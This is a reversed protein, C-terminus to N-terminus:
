GVPHPLQPLIRELNNRADLCDPALQLAKRYVAVAEDVKGQEALATGLSTLGTVYDPNIRAAQEFYTVAAELKGEEVLLYGMNCYPDANKPDIRVAQEFHGAAERFRGQKAMAIGLSNHAQGYDPNIRVAESYYRIAEDLKGGGAMANGINYLADANDPDLRLVESFQEVAEDDRGQSLMAAGLNYRALVNDPQQSVAKSLQEIGQATKGQGFLAAGLHIRASTYDPRILIAQSFHEIAADAKGQEALVYGLNYHILASGPSVRLTHEFLTVSDRWYQIQFWTCVSLASILTVAMAGLAAHRYRVREVLDPVGWAVMIFLGILPVYTYRDALAHHGVQVIGIVPVLTGLYWAWGVGFYPCRRILRVALVTVSGLIVTAAVIQWLPVGDLPYPYHVALNRPWVMKLIYRAYAVGANAVRDPLTVGRMEEMAGGRRQVLFTVVCSSAAFVFLPIKEYVPRWYIRTKKEAGSVSDGLRGLPWYDLLLLAFPLTVLMPKAMLGLAFLVIVPVYRWVGPKHVYGVYAWMTLLWFLTSLVDKREAVWAVSEVHLPHLAFLAAVFGSRWAVGTMRRLVLFLLVTNAAHLLVNTMHHAGANLGFLRCDLQHSLWTMPHWNAAHGTTFAWVVNEGTLGRYVHPNETVYRDDDYHVFEHSRVQCFVVVTAVILLTCIFLERRKDPVIETM